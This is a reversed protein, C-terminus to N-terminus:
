LTVGLGKLMANAETLYWDYDIDAPLAEPLEMCPKAGESNPVRNRNGKTNPVKYHLCGTVGVANVYAWDVM